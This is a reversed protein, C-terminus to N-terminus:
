LPVTHQRTYCPQVGTPTNLFDSEYLHVAEIPWSPGSYADLREVDRAIAEATVRDGPRALTLHPKYPKDDFPLKARRLERRLAGSLARVAATDGGVRAWLITFRGRGFTGGGGLTLAAPLLERVQPAACARNLAHAAGAVQGEEVEGLFVVTLHWRDPPSVRAGARTVDLDAFVAALGEVAAPPPDIAVFLRRAGTV